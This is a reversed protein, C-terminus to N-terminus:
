DISRDIGDEENFVTRVYKWISEHCGDCHPWVEYRASLRIEEGENVTIDTNPGDDILRLRGKTASPRVEIM